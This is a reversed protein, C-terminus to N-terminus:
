RASSPRGPARRPRRGAARRLDAPAALVEQARELRDREDDVQHLAAPQEDVGLLRGLRAAPLGAEHEVAVPRRQQEGLLAGLARAPTHHTGVRRRREVDGGSSWSPGSASRSRARRAPRAQEGRLDIRRCPKRRSWRQSRRARGAARWRPTGGPGARATRSSRCARGRRRRRRDDVAIRSHRRRPARRVLAGAVVHARRLVARAPDVAAGALRARHAAVRDAGDLVGAVRHVVARRALGAALHEGVVRRALEELLADAPPPPPASGSAGDAPRMRHRAAASCRAAAAVSGSPCGGREWKPYTDTMLLVYTNIQLIYRLAQLIFDFMGRPAQRHDRHRVVLRARRRRLRHRPRDAIVLAPIAWIFRLGNTLRNAPEEYRSRRDHGAGHGPRHRVGPVPRVDPQRLRQGPRHLRAVGVPPGVAGRQAQGHVPHHVVPRVALIEALYGWVSVVILHPIALILRFATTLRNRPEAYRVDYTLPLWPRSRLAGDPAAAVGATVLRGGAM